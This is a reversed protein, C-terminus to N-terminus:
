MSSSTTLSSPLSIPGTLVSLLETEGLKLGDALREGEELSDGETLGDALKDGEDDSLEETLGLEDSLGLREGLALKLGLALELGESEGLELTLALGLGLSGIPVVTSISKSSPSRESKVLVTLAKKSIAAM